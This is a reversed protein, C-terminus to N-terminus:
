QTDEHSLSTFQESTHLLQVMNQKLEFRGGAAPKCISSTVNNALPIAVDRILRDVLANAPIIDTLDAILLQQILYKITAKRRRQHFVRRPELYPEVLEGEKAM